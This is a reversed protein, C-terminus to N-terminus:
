KVTKKIQDKIFVHQERNPHKGHCIANTDHFYCDDFLPDLFCTDIYRVGLNQCLNRLTLRYHNIKKSLESRDSKHNVLFKHYDKLDKFLCKDSTVIKVATSNVWVSSMTLDNTACAWYPNFFYDLDFNHWSERVLSTWGVMLLDHGSLNEVADHFIRENSNGPIAINNPIYGLEASLLNAYTNTVNEPHYTDATLESGHTISCGVILSKM